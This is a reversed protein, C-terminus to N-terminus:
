DRDAVRVVLGDLEESIPIQCCLRSKENAYDNLELLDAEFESQKGINEVPGEEIHVHCTACSCVGGCEGDIGDVGYDRALQMLSGTTGELTIREDNLTIYTIKAM